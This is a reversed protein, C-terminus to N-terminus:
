SFNSLIIPGFEVFYHRVTVLGLEAGPDRNMMKLAIGALEAASLNQDVIEGRDFLWDFLKWGEVHRRDLYKNAHKLKPMWYLMRKAKKTAFNWQGFISAVIDHLEKDPQVGPIYTTTQRFCLHFRVM